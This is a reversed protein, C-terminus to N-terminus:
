NKGKMARWADRWVCRQLDGYATGVGEIEWTMLAFHGSMNPWCQIQTTAGATGVISYIRGDSRELRAEVRVPALTVPDWQTRQDLGRVGHTVGNEYIYGWLCNPEMAPLVDNWQPHYKANDFGLYHFAFNEDKIGVIWNVPAFGHLAESRNEGWSRDRTHFGGIRFAEGNLVLEGTTKMAQCIHGGNYRNAPPMVAKLHLNLRTNRQEDSFGIEFENLPEIMRVTVGNAYTCNTHDDPMPMAIRYDSYDCEIQNANKGRWIMLGGYTVKFAPHHWFYIICDIDHEPINFGFMSTETWEHTAHAPAPQLYEEEPLMTTIQESGPEVTYRPYKTTKM